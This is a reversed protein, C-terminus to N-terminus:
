SHLTLSIILMIVIHLSHCWRKLLTTESPIEFGGRFYPYAYGNQECTSLRAYAVKMEYYPVEKLVEPPIPPGKEDERTPTVVGQQTEEEERQTPALLDLIVEGAGVEDVKSPEASNRPLTGSDSM